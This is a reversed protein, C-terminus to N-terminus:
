LARRLPEMKWACEDFEADPDSDAVIGGGGFLRATNGQILGSRIMVAFEADEVGIWGIIGAYLGRPEPELQAIIERAPAIPLGCTAPTPHLAHLLDDLTTQEHLEAEVSTYLHQVTSLRRVRPVGEARVHECLPRLSSMIHQTVLEQEHRDKASQSLEQALRDDEQPDSGRPRSGALSDVGLQNQRLQFLREPTAGLFVGGGPHHCAFLISDDIDASLRELVAAADIAFNATLTEQRSLVVKQLTGGAIEKQVARVALHWRDRAFWSRESFNSVHSKFPSTGDPSLLDRLDTPDNSGFVLCTAEDQRWRVFVRPLVIRETPFAQWPARMPRSLDFAFMAFGRPSIEAPADIQELARRCAELTPFERAQGLAFWVDEESGNQWCFAPESGTLLHWPCSISLRQCQVAFPRAQMASFRM